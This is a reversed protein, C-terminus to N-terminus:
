IVRLERTPLASNVAAGRRRSTSSPRARAKPPLDPVDLLRPLLAPETRDGPVDHDGHRRSGARPRVEIEDGARIAGQRAGAPLSGAPRGAAFRQGLRLQRAAPGMWSKFDNCPTRVACRSSCTGSRGASAWRPRTSTSGATTLNEGFQGDLVPGLEGAWWDLDERAFAYVAKDVGGHHGPRVGPRRRPRAASPSRRRRGRAERDLHPRDRGSRRARTRRQRFSLPM